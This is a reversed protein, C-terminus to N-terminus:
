TIMLLGEVDAVEVAPVQTYQNTNRLVFNVDCERGLKLLKETSLSNKIHHEINTAYEEVFNMIEQALREFDTPSAPCAFDFVFDVARRIRLPKAIDHETFRFRSYQKLAEVNELSGTILNDIGIVADGRKLLAEALHYGVLGAVGAVLSTRTKRM